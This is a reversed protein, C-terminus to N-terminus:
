NMTQELMATLEEVIGPQHAWLNEQEGPDNELHYLQGPTGPQPGTGRPPPWGGSNDCDVVLKWPGKRVSFVGFVSHHILANRVPPSGPDDFLPLLSVSDEADGPTLVIGTLDACTAMFDNLGVLRDSVGGPSIRGPWRAIFPERHGGEWIHSKYGRYDLSPRHGYTNYGELGEVGPIKDGPLAGNDSTAIVLTNDAQGTEDLADLVRGVMWDFLWVLDGRPGADSQGQAFGPVVEPTCPEHPASAALYLFFPNEKGQQSRIYDVAKEAFAPDADKHQWSPATMGPRGTFPPKPKYVFPQETFHNNEIFGYPPQCTSCGSTGYFYDFGLVTPGGTVGASFDIKEEDERLADPWPLERDFDFVEGDKVSYGLGLHWKGVCATDYGATKLLAAVTTREPEILPPEYGYLVNNKLKGRWCYRGTIIGYRSPTCVASASHADTFRIGQSALRDMNPTPIKTAANYCGVDGVGMDDAMIFIINP